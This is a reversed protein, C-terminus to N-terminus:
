NRNERPICDVVSGRRDFEFACCALLQKRLMARGRLVRSKTAALTLGLRRAVEKHPLEEIEALVVAERYGDPLSRVMGRFSAILPERAPDPRRHEDTALDEEIAESPKRRRYHDIIANRATRFLWPGIDRISRGAALHRQLKLFVDQRIDEAATENEVRARIFRELQGAFENWARGTQSAAVVSM